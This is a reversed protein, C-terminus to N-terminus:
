KQVAARQGDGPGLTTQSDPKARRPTAQLRSACLDLGPSCPTGAAAADCAAHAQKIVRAACATSPGPSHALRPRSHTAGSGTAAATRLELAGASRVGRRRCEDIHIANRQARRLCTKAAAGGRQSRGVACRHEAHTRPAADARRSQGCQREIERKGAIRLSYAVASVAHTALRAHILTTM